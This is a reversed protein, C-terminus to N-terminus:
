STEEPGTEALIRRAAEYDLNEARYFETLCERLKAVQAALRAMEKIASDAKLAQAAYQARGTLIAENQKQIRKALGDREERLLRVQEELADIGDPGGLREPSPRTM